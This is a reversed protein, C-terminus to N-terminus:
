IFFDSVQKWIIKRKRCECAGILWLLFQDFSQFFISVKEPMRGTFGFRFIMDGDVDEKESFFNVIYYKSILLKNQDNTDLQLIDNHYNTLRAVKRKEYEM